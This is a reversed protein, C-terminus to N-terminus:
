MVTRAASPLSIMASSVTAPWVTEPPRVGACVAIRPLTHVVRWTHRLATTAFEAVVVLPVVLEKWAASAGDAGSAYGCEVEARDARVAVDGRLARALDRVGVRADRLEVKPAHSGGLHQLRCGIRGRAIRASRRHGRRRGRLHHIEASASKCKRGHDPRAAGVAGRVGIAPDRVHHVEDAVGIVCAARLRRDGVVDALGQAQEDQVQHLHGRARGLGRRRRRRRGARGRGLVVDVPVVDVVGDVPVVDVPVVDVPVVDVPVVDVPVVDVPVVDVPVVDVPVVDVPVVDVPVVDVPVVDVPVVDVPVVEVPVVEVPVVEVPVVDVPVVEVPVVEVPVVDVPVVDVPVVDVPVVDSLAAANGNVPYSM